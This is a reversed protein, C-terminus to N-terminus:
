VGASDLWPALARVADGPSRVHVTKMGAARAAEVNALTDDLFLVRDLSVGIARSVHEFAEREPKRKGMECSAFIRDLPELARAYRRRFFEFHTRNTNSMLYQPVRGRLRRLAEVVEPHEPGFVRQWGDTLQANDLDIGIERRVARFYDALDIEGREHRQYAEGHSFRSKVQQMPVGALEAWRGFIWDFDIDIIVGGFDYLLADVEAPTPM